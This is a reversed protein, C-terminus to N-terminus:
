FWYQMFIKAPYQAYVIKWRSKKFLQRQLKYKGYLTREAKSHM